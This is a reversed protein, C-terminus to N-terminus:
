DSGEQYLVDDLGRKSDDDASTVNVIYPMAGLALLERCLENRARVVMPNTHADSDYAVLVVRGKWEFDYFIPLLPLKRKTSKFSYVGGLGLCPTAFKTCCAAKLEGETIVIEFSTDKQIAAWDVLPPMYVESVTDAAQVYRIPKADTKAAFENRTDELYRWRKFGTRKGKADFYPLEMAKKVPLEARLLDAADAPKIGLVKADALDLCSTELKAAMLEATDDKAVKPKKGPPAKSRSASRKPIPSLEDSM